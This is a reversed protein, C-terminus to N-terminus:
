ASTLATWDQEYGMLWELWNINVRGPPTDKEYRVATCIDQLCRHTMQAAGKGYNGHLTPWGCKSVVNEGQKMSLPLVCRVKSTFIIMTNRRGQLYAHCLAKFAAFACQPVVANALLHFRRSVLKQRCDFDVTRKPESRKPPAKMDRLICRIYHLSLHPSYAIAFWRQRHHPLGVENAQVKCHLMGYGIKRFSDAIVNRYAEVDYVNPSNELIVIRPQLQHCTMVLTHFLGSAMHGFGQRKGCSSFGTCPFGATIIDVAQGSCHQAAYKVDPIIPAQPLRGSKMLINLTHQSFKSIDCYAVPRSISALAITM